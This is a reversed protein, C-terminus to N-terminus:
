YSLEWQRRNTQSAGCASVYRVQLSVQTVNLVQQTASFTVWVKRTCAALVIESTLEEEEEKGVQSERM